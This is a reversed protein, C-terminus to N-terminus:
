SHLKAIYAEKEPQTLIPTVRQAEDFCKSEVAPDAAAAPTTLTLLAIVAGFTVSKAPM